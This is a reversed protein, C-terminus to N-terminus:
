RSKSVNPLFIIERWSYRDATRSIEQDVRYSDLLKRLSGSNIEDATGFTIECISNVQSFEKQTSCRQM